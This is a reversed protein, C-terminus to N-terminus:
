LDFHPGEVETPLMELGDRQFPVTRVQWGTSCLDGGVIHAFFILGM